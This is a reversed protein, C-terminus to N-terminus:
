AGFMLMQALLRRGAKSIVFSTDQCFSEQLRSATTKGSDHYNLKAEGIHIVNRPSSITQAVDGCEIVLVPLM